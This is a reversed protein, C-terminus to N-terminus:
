RAPRRGCGPPNREEVRPAVHDLGAHEPEDVRVVGVSLDTEARDAIVAGRRGVAVNADLVHLDVRVYYDPNGPQGSVACM